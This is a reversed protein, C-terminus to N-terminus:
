IQASVEQGVRFGVACVSREEVRTILERVLQLDSLSVASAVIRFIGTTRVYLKSDFRISDFGLHLSSLTGRHSMHWAEVTAKDRACVTCGCFVVAVPYVVHDQFSM